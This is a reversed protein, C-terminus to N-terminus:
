INFKSSFRDLERVENMIREIMEKQQVLYVKANPDVMIHQNILKRAHLVLKELTDSSWPM